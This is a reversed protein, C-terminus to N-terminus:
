LQGGIRVWAAAGRSVTWDAVRVRANVSQGPGFQVIHRIKNVDRM